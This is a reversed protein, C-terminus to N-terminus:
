RFVVPLAQQLKLTFEESLKQIMTSDPVSDSAADVCIGFIILKEPLASLSEGLQLAEAVGTHHTSLASPNALLSKKDLQVLEGYKKKNDVADIIVACGTNELLSLLRTGPRDTKTFVLANGADGYKNAQQLADVLLWGAQDAGFPSGVGIITIENM